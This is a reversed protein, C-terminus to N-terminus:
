LVSFEKRCFGAVNITEDSFGDFNLHMWIVDVTIPPNLRLLDQFGSSCLSLSLLCGGLVDCHDRRCMCKYVEGKWLRNTCGGARNQWEGKGNAGGSEQVVRGPIFVGYVRDRTM